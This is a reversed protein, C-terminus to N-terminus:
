FYVYVPFLCVMLFILELGPSPGFVATQAVMQHYLFTQLLESIGGDPPTSGEVFVIELIHQYIDDALM